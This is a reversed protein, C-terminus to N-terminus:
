GIIEVDTIADTRHDTDIVQGSRKKKGNIKINELVFIYRNEGGGVYRAKGPARIESVDGEVTATIGQWYLTFKVRMRPRIEGEKGPLFEGVSVSEVTNVSENQDSSDFSRKESM